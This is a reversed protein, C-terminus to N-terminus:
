STEFLRLDRVQIYFHFIDQEVLVEVDFYSIKPISLASEVWGYEGWVLASCAISSRFNIILVISSVFYIKESSSNDKEIHNRSHNRESIGSSM